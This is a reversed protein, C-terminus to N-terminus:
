AEAPARAFAGLVADAFASATRVSKKRKFTQGVVVRAGRHDLWGALTQLTRRPAVDCTCFVAAVKGDLEPLADIAERVGDAPGVGFLVAGKVWSGVVLADAAAVTGRDVRRLPATEASVGRAILEDRVVQAVTLTFGRRTEYLILIRM